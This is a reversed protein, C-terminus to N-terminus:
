GVFSDFICCIICVISITSQQLYYKTRLFIPRKHGCGFHFLNFQFTPFSHVFSGFRTNTYKSNTDATWHDNYLYKVRKAETATSAATTTIHTWCEVVTAMASTTLNIERTERQWGEFIKCKDGDFLCVLRHIGLYKLSEITYSIHTNRIHSRRVNIGKSSNFRCFYVLSLYHTTKYTYIRFRDSSINLADM